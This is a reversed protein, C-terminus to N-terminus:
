RQVVDGETWLPKIIRLALSGASRRPDIIESDTPLMPERRLDLNTRFDIVEVGNVPRRKIAIGLAVIQQVNPRDNGGVLAVSPYSRGVYDNVESPFENTAAVEVSLWGSSGAAYGGRRTM